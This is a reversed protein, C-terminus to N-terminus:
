LSVHSKATSCYQLVQKMGAELHTVHDELYHIRHRLRTNDEGLKDRQQQVASLELSVTRGEQLKESLRTQILAIDEKLGTVHDAQLSPTTPVSRLVVVKVPSRLQALLAPWSSGLIRLVNEGNIEVVRDGAQLRAGSAEGGVELGFGELRAVVGALEQRELSAAELLCTQSSQVASYLSCSQRSMERVARAKVTEVRATQMKQSLNMMEIQDKELSYEM